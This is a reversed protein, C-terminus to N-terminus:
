ILSNSKPLNSTEWLTEDVYCRLPLAFGNELCQNCSICAAKSLDGEKWRKVLWPERIFPRCLSVMDAIGDSIVEEIVEPSRMGGVLIM